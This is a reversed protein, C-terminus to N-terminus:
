LSLTDAEAYTGVGGGGPRHGKDLCKLASFNMM